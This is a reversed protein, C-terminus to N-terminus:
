DSKRKKKMAERQKYRSVIFNYDEVVKEAYQLGWRRATKDRWYRYEGDVEVAIADMIDDNEAARSCFLLTGVLLNKRWNYLDKYNEILGLEKLYNLTRNDTAVLMLGIKGMKTREKIHWASKRSVLCAILVSNVYKLSGQDGAFERMEEIASSVIGYAEAGDIDDEANDTLMQYLDKVWPPDFDKIESAESTSFGFIMVMTIILFVMKIYSKM